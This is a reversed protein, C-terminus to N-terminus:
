SISKLYDSPNIYTGSVEVEYHVYDTIGPYIETLGQAEGIVDGAKITDGVRVTPRVYFYRCEYQDQETIEVFRLHAKDPHKKPHYPYGIKTVLGNNPSVLKDGAHVVLDIGNHARNGRPALYEGSGHEDDGRIELTKPNLLKAM